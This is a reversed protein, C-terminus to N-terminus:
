KQNPSPANSLHKWAEEESPALWERALSAESATAIAPDIEEAPIRTRALDMTQAICDVFEAAPNRLYAFFVEGKCVEDAEIEIGLPFIEMLM